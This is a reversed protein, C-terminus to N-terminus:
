ASDSSAPSPPTAQGTPLGAAIKDRWALLLQTFFNKEKGSNKLLVSPDTETTRLVNSCFVISINEESM